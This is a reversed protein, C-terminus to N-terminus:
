ETESNGWRWGLNLFSDHFTWRTWWRHLNQLESLWEEGCQKEWTSYTIIVTVVFYGYARLVPHHHLHIMKSHSSWQKNTQLIAFSTKVWSKMNSILLFLPTGTILNWSRQSLNGCVQYSYILAYIYFRSFHFLHIQKCLLFLSTSMTLLHTSVTPSPSPPM